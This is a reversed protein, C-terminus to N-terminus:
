LTFSLQVIDGVPESCVAEFWLRPWAAKFLHLAVDPTLQSRVEIVGTQQQGLKWFEFEVRCRHHDYRPESILGRPLPEAM